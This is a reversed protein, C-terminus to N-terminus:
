NQKITKFRYIKLRKQYNWNTCLETGHQTRFLVFNINIISIRCVFDLIVLMKFLKDPLELLLGMQFKKLAMSLVIASHLM